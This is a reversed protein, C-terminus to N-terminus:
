LIFRRECLHDAKAKRHIERVEAQHYQELSHQKLDNLQEPLQEPKPPQSNPKQFRKLARLYFVM